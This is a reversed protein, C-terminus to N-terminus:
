PRPSDFMLTADPKAPDFVGVVIKTPKEAPDVSIVTGKFFKVDGGPLQFGKVDSEFKAQGQDGSLTQQVGYWQKLDPNQDLKAQLAKADEEAKKGADVLKFDPPPTANTKAMELLKDAGDTGGTFQGYIKM